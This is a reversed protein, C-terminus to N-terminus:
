RSFALTLFHRVAADSVATAEMGSVGIVLLRGPLADGEGSPAPVALVPVDGAVVRAGEGGPDAALVDIRDGVEVLGVMGADPLRVPLASMGPYGELLSPAVLRVDTLPEGRTLPSALTRGVPDDARGAPVSDPTFAVEVLDDPYLVVGAPLDRAAVLVGVRPPAPAAAAQVGAAVALAACLAALLRRRILVARRVRVRLRTLRGASSASMATTTTASSHVM